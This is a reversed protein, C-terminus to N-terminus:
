FIDVIKYKVNRSYLECNILIEIEMKSWMSLIINFKVGNKFWGICLEWKTKMWLCKIWNKNYDFDEISM